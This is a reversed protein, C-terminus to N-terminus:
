HTRMIRRGFRSEGLSTLISTLSTIQSSLGILMQWKEKSKGYFDTKFDCGLDCLLTMM